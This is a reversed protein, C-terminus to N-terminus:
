SKRGPRLRGAGIGQRRKLILRPATPKKTTVKKDENAKEKRKKLEQAIYDLKTELNNNWCFTRYGCFSCPFFDPSFKEDREPLTGTRFHHLTVLSEAQMEKVLKPSLSQHFEELEQTDKNEVLLIGDCHESLMYTELQKRYEEPCASAKVMKKWSIDKASKVDVVYLKTEGTLRPIVKGKEFRWNYIEPVAIVADLRGSVKVRPVLDVLIDAERKRLFGMLHLYAAIRYHVMDGNKFIREMRGVHTPDHNPISEPVNFLKYIKQLGCAAISSPSLYMTDPDKIKRETPATDEAIFQAITQLFLTDLSNSFERDQEM